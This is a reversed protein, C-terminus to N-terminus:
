PQVSTDEFTQRVTIVGAHSRPFVLGRLGAMMCDRLTPDLDGKAPNPTAVAILNGEQDIGVDVALAKHADSGRARWDAVCAWLKKMRTDIQAQILSQAELPTKAFPKEPGGADGAAASSGAASGSAAPSAGGGAGQANSGGCAAMAVAMALIVARSAARIM